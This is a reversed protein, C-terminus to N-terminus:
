VNFICLEDSKSICHDRFCLLNFALDMLSEISALSTSITHSYLEKTVYHDPEELSTNTLKLALGSNQLFNVSGDSLRNGIILQRNGRIFILKRNYWYYYISVVQSPDRIKYLRRQLPDNQMSEKLVM